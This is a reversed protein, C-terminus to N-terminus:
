YCLQTLVRSPSLCQPRVKRSPSIEGRFAGRCLSGLDGSADLIPCKHSTTPIAQVPVAVRFSVHTAPHQSRHRGDTSPCYTASFHRSLSWSTRRSAGDAARRRSLRATEQLIQSPDGRIRANMLASISRIWTPTNLRTYAPLTCVHLCIIFSLVLSCNSGRQSLAGAM